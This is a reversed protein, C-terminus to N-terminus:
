LFIHISCIPYFCLRKEHLRRKKHHLHKLYPHHAPGRHGAPKTPQDSSAVQADDRYLESVGEVQTHLGEAASSTLFLMQRTKWFYNDYHFLKKRRSKCILQHCGATHRRRGRITPFHRHLATLWALKGALVTFFTDRDRHKTVTSCVAFVM